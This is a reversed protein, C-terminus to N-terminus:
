CSLVHHVTNTGLKRPIILFLHHHFSCFDNFEGTSIWRGSRISEHSRHPIQPSRRCLIGIVGFQKSLTTKSAGASHGLHESLDNIHNVFTNVLLLVSRASILVHVFPIRQCHCLGAIVPPQNSKLPPYSHPTPEPTAFCIAGARDQLYAFELLVFLPSGHTWPSDGFLYPQPQPPFRHKSFQHSAYM